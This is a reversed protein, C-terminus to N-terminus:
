ILHDRTAIVAAEARNAADLKNLVNAVHWEVTRQSIYLTEAIQRDTKGAAVLRLVESERRSLHHDPDRPHVSAHEDGSLLQVIEAQVEAPQMRNGTTWEREFGTPGLMMRAIAASRETIEKEPCRMPVDHAAAGWLRAARHHDGLQCAIVSAVARLLPEHQRFAVRNMDPHQRLLAAARDPQGRECWILAQYVLSWAPILPDDLVMAASRVHDFIGMARDLNGQGLAVIGLHYNCQLSVWEDGALVAYESCAPFHTEARAYEGNDEAFMGMLLAASARQLTTGHEAAEGASATVFGEALPSAIKHALFGAGLLLELRVGPSLDIVQLARQYWDLGEVEHKNWEWHHELATVLAALAGTQGTADLWRLATRINAHEDELPGIALVQDLSGDHARTNRVFALVWQAHRNRVDAAEGSAALQEWAFERLTELMGYRSSGDPQVDRWVMNRNALTELEQQVSADGPGDGAVTEAAERTWGGTFVALRMFLTQESADLLDYSWAISAQLSRLRDPQDVPGDRLLALRADMRRLLEAPSFSSLRAAALEIALPLGDLRQCIDTIAGTNGPTLQFSPMVATARDTFLRVAESAEAKETSHPLSLPAVVHLREGSVHLPIRSTVLVTLAPCAMLLDVVHPGADVVQEVNDLVLLATRDGLISSIVTPFLAPDAIRARGLVQMIAPPVHAPERVTALPVFWVEDVDPAVRSTVEIALRTKGVGGPGTLTLVRADQRLRTAIASIEQERGIFPTLPRPLAAAHPSVSRSQVLMLEPHGASRAGPQADDFANPMLAEADFLFVCLTTPKL